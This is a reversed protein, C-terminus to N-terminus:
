QIVTGSFDQPRAPPGPQQPEEGSGGGSDWPSASAGIIEDGTVYAGVAIRDTTSGDNDLDLIDIGANIAPSGSQLRFDGNAGDVYMPNASSSRPAVTGHNWMSNWQSLSYNQYNLRLFANYNYYLNHEFQVNGTNTYNYPFVLNYDRPNSFINNFIRNGSNTVYNFYLAWGIDDFTNNAVITNTPGGNISNLYLGAGASDYVVNHFVRSGGSGIGLLYIGTATVNYIRNNSILIPGPNDGKIFIGQSSNYITNYRITLNTSTYALVGETNGHDGSSYVDSIVNNEITCGNAGESRIAAHNGAPLTAGILRNNVFRTNNSGWCVGISREGAYPTYTNENVTFGDWTIYSRNYAGFVPGTTGPDLTLNVTGVAKFVIPNASTGSNAPNFAPDYRAGSGAASYTGAAVYVTDGERAAQSPNPSTRSTSGWAARKLTAWPNSESNNEYSVSDNGIRNDVYLNKALATNSSIVISFMLCVLLRMMNRMSSNHVKLGKKASRTRKRTAYITDLNM